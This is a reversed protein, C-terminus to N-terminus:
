APVAAANRARNKEHAQPQLNEDDGQTQSLRRLRGRAIVNRRFLVQKGSQMDDAGRAPDLYELGEATIAPVVPLSGAHIQEVAGATATRRDVPHPHRLM